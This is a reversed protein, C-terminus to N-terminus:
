ESFYTKLSPNFKNYFIVIVFFSLNPSLKNYNSTLFSNEFWLNFVFAADINDNNDVNSLSNLYRINCSKSIEAYRYLNSIAKGMNLWKKKSDPNPNRVKFASANNITTEVRLNNAKDYVKISNKDLIFKVRFGQGFFNKRGSVAEGQYLGHVKRGFFTFINEGVQCLPAYEVFYPYLKELSGRGKFMIGTAYECQEVYWKYAHGNFIEKIRPLFGNVREAFRDFVKHWKKEHFKDSMAQAKEIDEVWTISNDYSKYKIGSKDLQKKLYERGNIYIQLGFTFWTQFRVHMLGFDRDMYYFYYHLCKRYGCKKELKGISKNYEVSLATCPEVASLVCVLGENIGQEKVVRKVIDEKSIKPSNLYETYVGTESIIKGVHSKIQRTVKQAYDRFDKLKIEEKNLFYYFNNGYYFEGIYGKLIIRDFGHVVGHIYDSYKDIFKQM